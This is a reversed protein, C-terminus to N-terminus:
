QKRACPNHSGLRRGPQVTVTFRRASPGTCGAPRSRRSRGRPCTGDDLGESLGARDCRAATPIRSPAEHLRGPRSVVRADGFKEVVAKTKLFYLDTWQEVM